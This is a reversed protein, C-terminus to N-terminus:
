DKSSLLSAPFTQRSKISRRWQWLVFGISLLASITGLVVNLDSLVMVWFPATVGTGSVTYEVIKPHNDLM